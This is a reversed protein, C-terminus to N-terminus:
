GAAIHRHESLNKRNKRAIAGAATTYYEFWRIGLTQAIRHKSLFFMNRRKFIYRRQRNAADFGPNRNNLSSHPHSNGQGAQSGRDRLFASDADDCGGSDALELGVPM